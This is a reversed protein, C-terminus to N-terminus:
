AHGTGQGPPSPTGSVHSFRLPQQNKSDNQLGPRRHDLFWRASMPRQAGAAMGPKGLVGPGLLGGPLLSPAPAGCISTASPIHQCSPPPMSVLAAPHTPKQPVPVRSPMRIVWLALALPPLPDRSGGSLLRPALERPICPPHSPAPPAASAPGLGAHSASPGAGSASGSTFPGLAHPATPGEREWCTRYGRETGRLRSCRRPLCHLGATM